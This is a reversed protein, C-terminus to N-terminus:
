RERRLDNETAPPRKKAAQRSQPWPCPLPNGIGQPFPRVLVVWGWSWRTVPNTGTASNAWRLTGLFAQWAAATFV